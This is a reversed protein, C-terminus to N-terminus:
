HHMSGLNALLAISLLEIRIPLVPGWCRSKVSGNRRSRLCAIRKPFVTYGDHLDYRQDGMSAKGSLFTQVFRASVGREFMLEYEICSQPALWSRPSPQTDDFLKKDHAM